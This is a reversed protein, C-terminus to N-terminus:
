CILPLGSHERIHIKAFALIAGHLCLSFYSNSRTVDRGYAPHVNVQGRTPVALPLSPGEWDGFVTFRVPHRNQPLLLQHLIVHRSSCKLSSILSAHEEGLSGTERLNFEATGSLTM